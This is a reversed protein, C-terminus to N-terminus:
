INLKLIVLLSGEGYLFLRITNILSGATCLLPVTHPHLTQKGLLASVWRHSWGYSGPLAALFVCGGLVCPANLGEGPHPPHGRGGAPGAVFM